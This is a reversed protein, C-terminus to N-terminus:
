KENRLAAEVAAGMEETGLVEIGERGAALDGTMRGSALVESFARRLRTAAEEWGLHDLLMAGSLMMSGPNALNRGAIDPATGHTSEFLAVGEGVNAGPAIGLGGVQAACADSLYDGNLNPAAIVDFRGPHLLLEQFMADAIRDDVVVVGDPRAAGPVLDGAAVARGAFEERVLEYGWDRFAGETYKMINGKHVLTVRRLGRDLAHQIAARVLRRTGARSMPKVGLGTGPGIQIGSEALLSGLRRAGDSDAEFEIGAYVDETNERFIVVDLADPDTVPAQVGAFHRVPRINAYLDLAQRLAVNISRHGGGVPTMTPGKIAVRHERIAEITAEPLLELGAALARGGAPLEFWSIRREGGYAVEVAADLAPRAAGWVEPGIGDGSLFPIEPEDPVHLKNSSYDIKM